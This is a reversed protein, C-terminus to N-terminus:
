NNDSAAKAREAEIARWKRVNANHERLTEAFAHGGTGDAVFFIFDSDAPNLTAEIAAKGPNAIPTPPLGEIIYTNYPTAKDLESRRLGRGLSGKGETLGYIVTPDTQLRMGRKLRNSFVSAVLAREEVQGTEKEIISALILAEERNKLLTEPDRNLWANELIEVQAKQMKEILALRSEGRNYSYTNPALSGEPPIEEIEGTLLDVSNLKQVVQWSTWGEVVTVAYSVGRGSTIIALIDDMSAAAPIEYEGFKLKEAAKAYRAGLRFFTPNNIAGADRLRETVKSLGDGREVPVIITEALPGPASFEARAWMVLIGLGAIALIIFTLANAAIHRMM